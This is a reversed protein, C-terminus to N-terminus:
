ARPELEADMRDSLLQEFERTVPGPAGSGVPRGDIGSAGVVPKTTSAVFVEDAEVLMARTVREERM